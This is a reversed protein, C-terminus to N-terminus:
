VGSEMSRAIGASRLMRSAEASPRNRAKAADHADDPADAGAPGRGAGVGGGVTIAGGGAAAGLTEAGGGRGNAYAGPV